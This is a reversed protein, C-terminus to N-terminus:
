LKKDTEPITIATITPMRSPTTMPVTKSAATNVQRLYCIICKKYFVNYNHNNIM